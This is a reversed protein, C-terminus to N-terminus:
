ILKLVCIEDKASTSLNYNCANIKLKTNTPASSSYRWSSLRIKFYQPALQRHSSFLVLVLVLLQQNVFQDQQSNPTELRCSCGDLRDIAASDIKEAALSPRKQHQGLKSSSLLPSFLLRAQCGDIHAPAGIAILSQGPWNPLVLLQGVYNLKVSFLLSSFHPSFLARKYSTLNLNFYFPSM